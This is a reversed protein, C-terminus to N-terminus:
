SSFFFLVFSCYSCFSRLVFKFHDSTLGIGGDNKGPKLRNIAAQVDAPLIVCDKNYSISQLDDNIINRISIMDNGDYPVSTYLDEFKSAFLQAIDSPSSVGDVTNGRCRKTNRIRKAEDWFGRDNNAALDNAFRENIIDERNRNVSRIAHHYQAGTQRM